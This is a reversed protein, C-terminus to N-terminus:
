WSLLYYCVLELALMLDRCSIVHSVHSVPASLCINLIELEVVCIRACVLMLACACVFICVCLTAFVCL